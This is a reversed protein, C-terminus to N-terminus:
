GTRNLGDRLRQLIADVQGSWDGNVKQRFVTVSPYWPSDDRDLLWRWDSYQPVLVWTPRNLAGSIHAASTDVTLVLDLTEILDATDKFDQLTSGREEAAFEETLVQKEEDTVDKQLSVWDVPLGILPRFDALPMSRYAGNPSSTKARWALGIRPRELQPRAMQSVPLYPIKGPLSEITTNFLHPLSLLSCHFHCRPLPQGEAVVGALGDLGSFLRLLASPCSLYIKEARQRVQDLFRIFQVSDGFGQETHLLLAEERLPRGDWLEAGLANAPASRHVRNLRWEYEIFGPTYNGHQLYLLALNFHSEGDRPNSKIAKQYCRFVKAPEGLLGYVVALSRLLSGDDPKEQLLMLLRDRAEEYSASSELLGYDEV